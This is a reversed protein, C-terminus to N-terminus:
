KRAARPSVFDPLEKKTKTLDSMTLSNGGHQQKEIQENRNKIISSIKKVMIARYAIPMNYADSYTIGGESNM